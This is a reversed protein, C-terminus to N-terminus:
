RRSALFAGGRVSTPVPTASSCRLVPAPAPPSASGDTPVLRARGVWKGILPAPDVYRDGLRVGFHFTPGTAGVLQGRLVLDGEAHRRETLGGYTVRRGDRHRVVVYTVGAISGAFTVRGTEVAVVPAATATSYELGRNGPCWPCTPERFPDVVVGAVPPRWCTDAASAPSAAVTLSVIAVILVRSRM